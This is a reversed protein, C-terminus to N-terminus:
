DYMIQEVAPNMELGVSHLIDRYQKTRHRRNADFHTANFANMGAEVVAQLEVRSSQLSEHSRYVTPLGMIEVLEIIRIDTPIIISPTSGAIGVMSGHIRSSILIDVNNTIFDIWKGTDAFVKLQSDRIVLEKHNKRWKEVCVKDKSTQLLFFANHNKSFTEFYLNLLAQDECTKPLVLGITVEKGERLRSLVRSFNEAMLQGAKKNPNLTLSPCGM